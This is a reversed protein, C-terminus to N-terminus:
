QCTFFDAIDIIAYGQIVINAIYQFIAWGYDIYVTVFPLERFLQNMLRQFSSPAGTLEFPICRFQFLGM